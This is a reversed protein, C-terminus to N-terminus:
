FRGGNLAVQLHRTVNKNWATGADMHLHIRLAQVAGDGINNTEINVKFGLSHLYLKLGHRAKPGFIGDIPGAYLKHHKLVQELAMITHKGFIGDTHLKVSPDPRAPKYRRNVLAARAKPIVIQRLQGERIAGPCVHHDTNWDERLEHYGLGKGVPGTRPVLRAPAKQDRCWEVTLRVLATLMNSDFPENPFGSTEVSNAYDNGAYQSDAQHYIDQLQWLEGSKHGSAKDHPGCLIWTSEDGTYGGPKFVNYGAEASGVIIHYILVKPHIAPETQPGLPKRHAWDVWGHKTIM